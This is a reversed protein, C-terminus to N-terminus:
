SFVSTIFQTAKGILYLSIGIMFIWKWITVNIYFQFAKWMRNVWFEFNKVKILNIYDILGLLM